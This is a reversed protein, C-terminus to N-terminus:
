CRTRMPTSRSACGLSHLTCSMSTQSLSHALAFQARTTTRLKRLEINIRRPQAASAAGIKAIEQLSMQSLTESWSISGISQDILLSVPGGFEFGLLSELASIRQHLVLRTPGSGETIPLIERPTDLMRDRIRALVVRALHVDYVATFVRPSSLRAEDGYHEVLQGRLRDLATEAYTKLPFLSKKLAVVADHERQIRRTEYLGFFLAILAITLAFLHFRRTSELSKEVHAIRLKILDDIAV